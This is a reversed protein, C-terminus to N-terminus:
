NFYFYYFSMQFIIYVLFSIVVSGVQLINCLFINVAISLVTAVATSIVLMKTKGTALLISAVPINHIFLVLTCTWIILWIDLYEYEIGVYLTLIDKACVIIPFCLLAVGVSAYKTGNYAVRGIAQDNGDGVFKSTKPLLISIASSSLSIIFLPFVEIIRYDSLIEVGETSFMGLILPRSQTACLQFIGMAFIALSYKIVKSFDRLFFGPLISKILNDKFCIYINPAIIITNIIGFLLFYLVLGYNYHITVIILVLNLITKIVLTKQIFSIKENAVVLQKFVENLWTPISVIAMIYLLLKFVPIQSDEIKFVSVNNALVILVISNVLGILLYFSINTRTVKNILTYQKKSIWLSFFKVSGVNLGLNLIHMAANISLVLILLGYREKGLYSLLLPISIFKIAADFIKSFFSWFISNAYYDNKKKV